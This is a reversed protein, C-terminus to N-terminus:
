AMEVDPKVQQQQTNAEASTTTIQSAAGTANAQQAERRSRNKEVDNQYQVSSSFFANPHNGVNDAVGNPHSAEFLRLCAVQHLNERRKDIIPRMEEPKVGYSSILQRLHEESYTKFPCGHYEEPGPTTQNIVKNCNWPKYDAKKGEKGFMHRINYGHGKEFKDSDMTKCFEQKWFTYAEEMTLGLGKIFLGLQLRGWHKLHHKNRLATMLSKMCPPFSKRSYYDLDSLKIKDTDTPAKAETINFDIAGHNSLSLLLRSIREDKLFESMFKAAKVLESSVRARFHAGLITTLDKISVYAIGNLLFVQRRNVLSIAEKFPVKVFCNARREEAKLFKFSIKAGYQKWDQDDEKVQEYRINCQLELLQQITEAKVESMRAQFLRVEQTLFWKRLEETRCYALRCIFHSINDNEKFERRNEPPIYVSSSGAAVQIAIRHQKTMKFVTDKIKEQTENSDYM